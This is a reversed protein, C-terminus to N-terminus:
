STGGRIQKLTRNLERLTKGSRPSLIRAALRALAAYSQPFEPGYRRLANMHKAVVKYDGRALPGTWAARPGLREFNDLMQRILPLLTQMARRRPFGLQTLVETAAEVLGLAHGAVLAGAAHYAPKYRGKINIPIGGLSRAIAAGVRRARPDGEVAFSIGKLNPRSRGSFTQMPHLSGTAAGLRALPALVRQDLAGSVHLIIRRRCVERGSRALEKAISALVDDPPTLLLIDADLARRISGAYPTGGGIARVAARSTAVSRTTVAGIRWGRAHLCQGLTRGVRGAGIIAITPKM